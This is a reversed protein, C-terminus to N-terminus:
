KKFRGFFGKKDEDQQVQKVYELIKRRTRVLESRTKMYIRKRTESDPHNALAHIIGLEADTYQDLLFRQLQDNSLSGAYSSCWASVAELEQFTHRVFPRTQVGETNLKKIIVEQHHKPLATIHSWAALM